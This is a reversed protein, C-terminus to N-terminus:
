FSMQITQARDPRFTKILLTHDSEYWAASRDSDTIGWSDGYLPIPRGDIRIQQPRYVDHLRYLVYPDPQLGTATNVVEQDLEMGRQSFDFSIKTEFYTGKKWGLTLGDDFWYTGEGRGGPFM